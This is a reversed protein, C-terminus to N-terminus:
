LRLQATLRRVVEAERGNESLILICGARDADIPIILRGETRQPEFKEYTKWRRDEYEGVLVVPQQFGHEFLELDGKDVPFVVLESTEFISKMGISCLM